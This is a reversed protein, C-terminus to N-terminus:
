EIKNIWNPEVIEVELLNRFERMKDMVTSGDLIKIERFGNKFRSIDKVNLAQFIELIRQEKVGKQFSVLLEDSVFEDSFPFDVIESETTLKLKLEWTRAIGLRNKKIKVIVLPKCLSNPLRDTQSFSQSAEVLVKNGFKDISDISLLGVDFARCHGLFVFVLLDNQWDTANIKDFDSRNSTKGNLRDSLYPYLQKLTTADKVIVLLPNKIRGGGHPDELVVEFPVVVPDVVGRQQAIVCSEGLLIILCFAASMKKM